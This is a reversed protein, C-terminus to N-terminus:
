ASQAHGVMVVSGWLGIDPPAHEWPKSAIGCCRYSPGLQNGHLRSDPPLTLIAQMLWGQLKAALVRVSGDHQCVADGVRACVSLCVGVCEM